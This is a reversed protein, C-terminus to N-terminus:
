GTSHVGPVPALHVTLRQSFTMNKGGLRVKLEGIEGDDRSQWVATGRTGHDPSCLLDSVWSDNEFREPGLRCSSLAPHALIPFSAHLQSRTICQTQETDAYRLNDELHPMITELHVDYCVIPSAPATEDMAAAAIDPSALFSLISLLHWM